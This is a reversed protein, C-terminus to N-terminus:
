GTKLLSCCKILLLNVLLLLYCTYYIYLTSGSMPPMKPNGCTFLFSPALSKFYTPTPWFSTSCNKRKKRFAQAM